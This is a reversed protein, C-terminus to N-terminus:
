DSTAGFVRWGNKLCVFFLSLKIALLSQVEGYKLWSRDDLERISYLIFQNFPCPPKKRKM